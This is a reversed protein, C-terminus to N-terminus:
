KILTSLLDLLGYSKTQVVIQMYYSGYASGSMKGLLPPKKFPPPPPDSPWSKAVKRHSNLFNSFKLNDTIFSQFIKKAFPVNIFKRVIQVIKQM